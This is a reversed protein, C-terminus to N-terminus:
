MAEKSRKEFQEKNIESVGGLKTVVFRTGGAGEQEYAIANEM